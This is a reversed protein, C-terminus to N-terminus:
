GRLTGHRRALDLFSSLEDTMMATFQQDGVHSLNGARKTDINDFLQGPIGEDLDEVFRLGGTDNSVFLIKVFIPAYSTRRLAERAEAKDDRRRFGSSTYPEGDTIVILYVPMNAAVPRLKRENVLKAVDRSELQDGAVEIGKYVADALNTYGWDRPANQNVWGRYNRLDLQKPEHAVDDFFVVQVSGDPDLTAGFALAREAADQVQGSAFEDRMSGSHDIVLVVQMPTQNPDVGSKDLQDMTLRVRGVMKQDGGTIKEVDGLSVGM